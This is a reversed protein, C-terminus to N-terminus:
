RESLAQQDLMEIGDDTISFVMLDEGLVVDGDFNEKTRAIMEEDSIGDVKGPIGNVFHTYVAMEPDADRFIEGAQEPTTHHSIVQPLVDPDEFAAVEHILLDVNTGYEVVNPHPITDGSILVSHEGYDIRYGQSPLIVNAPDHQVDFMTVKLGDNELVVGEESFEEWGIGTTEIDLEGDADRVQRDNEFAAYLNDVITGVGEPGYVMFDGDDRGGFAPVYGTMWLDDISLVHDSHYHTLILGDLQGAEIGAQTLRVVAGRGADVMYNMDGAQILISFGFRETSPVPSGTGLLTVRLEGEAPADKAPHTSEVVNVPFDNATIERTVTGASSEAAAVAVSDDAAAETQTTDTTSCASLALASAVGLSLLGARTRRSRLTFM